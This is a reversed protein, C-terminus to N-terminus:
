RVINRLLNGTFFNYLRFMNVIIKIPLDEKVEKSFNKNSKLKKYWKNTNPYKNKLDFGAKVIRNINIFWAIDLVTIENNLIYSNKTLKLEIKTVAESFKKFSENVQEDTIGFKHHNMWFDVEKDKKIDIEGKITGKNNKKNNLKKLNKKGLFHPMIFRFTLIRLDHHLSDEYALNEEIEKIYKNPILNINTNISEVFFMIDNSEIYVNGNYVLTPVLGRPNIGLFWDDFQEQKQLNIQHSEWKIKKLSLFIRLKQSCASGYFHLLHYGKWNFVEKTKIDSPDLQM